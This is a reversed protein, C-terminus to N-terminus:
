RCSSFALANQPSHWTRGCHRAKARAVRWAWPTHPPVVSSSRRRKRWASCRPRLLAAASPRADRGAPGAGGRGSGGPGTGVMRLPCAALNLQDQRDAQDGRTTGDVARARQGQGTWALAEVLWFTSAVLREGRPGDGRQAGARPLSEAPWGLPPPTSPSSSDRLWAYRYDYNKPGGIVEPLSTTAAAAHGRRARLAADEARASLPDGRRGLPGPLRGPREVPAVRRHHSRHPGRDATTATDRGARIPPSPRTM